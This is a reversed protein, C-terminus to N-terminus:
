RKLFWWQEWIDRIIIWKMLLFFLNLFLFQFVFNIALNETSKQKLVGTLGCTHGSSIKTFSTSFFLFFLRKQTNVRISFVVNKSNEKWFGENLDAFTQSSHQTTHSTNFCFLTLNENNKRLMFTCVWVEDISWSDQGQRFVLTYFWGSIWRCGYGSFPLFIVFNLCELYYIILQVVNEKKESFSAFTKVGFFSRGITKNRDYFSFKCENKSNQHLKNNIFINKIFGLTPFLIEDIGFTKEQM